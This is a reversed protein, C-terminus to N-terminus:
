KGDRRTKHCKRYFFPLSCSCKRAFWRRTESCVDKQATPAANKQGEAEGVHININGRHHNIMCILYRPTHCANMKQYSKGRQPWREPEFAHLPLRFDPVSARNDRHRKDAQQRTRRRPEWPNRQLNIHVGMGEGTAAPVLPPLRDPIVPGGITNDCGNVHCVIALQFSGGAVPALDAETCRARTNWVAPSRATTLLVYLLAWM